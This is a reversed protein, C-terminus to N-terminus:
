APVAIGSLAGEPVKAELEDLEAQTPITTAVTERLVRVASSIGREAAEIRLPLTERKMVGLSRGVRETDSIAEELRSRLIWLRAADIGRPPVMKRAINVEGVLSSIEEKAKGITQRSPRREIEGVLADLREQARRELRPAEKAEKARREARAEERAEERAPAEAARAERLARTTVRERLTPQGMATVAEETTAVGLQGRIDSLQVRVTGAELGLRDAIERTSLKEAALRLVQHQVSTLLNEEVLRDGTVVRAITQSLSEQPRQQGLLYQHVDEELGVSPNGPNGTGPAPLGLGGAIRDADRRVAGFIGLPDLPNFRGEETM